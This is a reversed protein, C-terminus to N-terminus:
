PVVVRESIYATNLDFQSAPKYNPESGWGEALVTVASVSGTLQLRLYRTGAPLQDARVEITKRANVTNLPAINSGSINSVVNFNAQASAQLRGDVTGAGATVIIEYMFRRFRSMDVGVSNINTNTISSGNIVDALSLSQSMQETFM